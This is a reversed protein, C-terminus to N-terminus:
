EEFSGIYIFDTVHFFGTGDSQIVSSPQSTVSANICYALGSIWPFYDQRFFLKGSKSVPFLKGVILCLIITILMDPLTNGVPMDINM